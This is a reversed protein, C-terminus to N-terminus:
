PGNLSDRCKDVMRDIAKRLTPWESPDVQIMGPRLHLARQEVEVFEGGAEDVIRVEVAREDFLAAGVPAVTLSTARVELKDKWSARPKPESEKKM